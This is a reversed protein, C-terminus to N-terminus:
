ITILAFDAEADQSVEIPDDFSVDIDVSNTTINRLEWVLNIDATMPEEVGPFYVLEVKLGSKLDIEGELRRREDLALENMIDDPFIMESTFKLTMEGTASVEKIRLDPPKENRSASTDREIDDNFKKTVYNTVSKM